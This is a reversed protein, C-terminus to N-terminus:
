APQIAGDPSSSFRSSSIAAGEAGVSLAVGVHAGVAALIEAEVSLVPALPFSVREITEIKAGTGEGVHITAEAADVTVFPMAITVSRLAWELFACVIRPEGEFVASSCALMIDIRREVFTPRPRWVGGVLDHVRLPTIQPAAAALLLETLRQLAQLEGGVRPAEAELALRDRAGLRHDAGFIAVIEAGIRAGEPRLRAAAARLDPQAALAADLPDFLRGILQRREEVEGAFATLTPVIQAPGLERSALLRTIGYISM